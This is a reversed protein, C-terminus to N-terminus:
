NREKLLLSIRSSTSTETKRMPVELHELGQELTKENGKKIDEQVEEGFEKSEEKGESKSASTNANMRVEVNGKPQEQEELESHHQMKITSLLMSDSESMAAPENSKEPKEMEIRTKLENPSSEVQVADDITQLEEKVQMENVVHAVVHASDVPHKLGLSSAVSDNRVVVDKPLDTQMGADITGGEERRADKELLEEIAPVTGVLEDSSRSSLPSFPLEPVPKEFLVKREPPKGVKFRAAPTSASAEAVGGDEHPTPNGINILAGDQQLNRMQFRAPVVATTPTGIVIPIPIAAGEFAPAKVGPPTSNPLTAVSRLHDRTITKEASSPSHILNPPLLSSVTDITENDVNSTANKTKGVADKFAGKLSRFGKRM